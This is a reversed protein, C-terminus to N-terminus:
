RRRLPQPPWGAKRPSSVCTVADRLQQGPEMGAVDPAMSLPRLAEIATVAAPHGGLREAAARLVDTQPATGDRVSSGGAPASSPRSLSSFALVAHM